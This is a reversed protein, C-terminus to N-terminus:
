DDAVRETEIRDLGPLFSLGPAEGGAVIVPVLSFRKGRKADEVHRQLATYYEVEQWQGIGTPGILLVFADAQAIRGALKPVFFGPSTSLPHFFIDATPELKLLGARLGEALAM